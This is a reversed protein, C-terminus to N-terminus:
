ERQCSSATSAASLYAFSFFKAGIMMMPWESPAFAATSIASLSPSAPTGTRRIMVKSESALVLSTLTFTLPLTSSTSL